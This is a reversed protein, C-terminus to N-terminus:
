CGARKGDGPRPAAHEGADDEAVKGLAGGVEDAGVGQKHADAAVEVVHALQALGAVEDLVLECAAVRV